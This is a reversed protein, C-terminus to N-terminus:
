RRRQGEVDHSPEALGFASVFQKLPNVDPCEISLGAIQIGAIDHTGQHRSGLETKAPSSPDQDRQFTLIPLFTSAPM